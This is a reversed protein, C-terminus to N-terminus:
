TNGLKKAAEPFGKAVLLAKLREPDMPTIPGETPGGNFERAQAKMMTVEELIMRITPFFESRKKLREKLVSLDLSKLPERLSTLYEEGTEKTLKATGPFCAALQGIFNQIQQSTNTM